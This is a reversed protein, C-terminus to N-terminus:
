KREETKSSCRSQLGKQLAIAPLKSKKQRRTLRMCERECVSVCLMAFQGRKNSLDVGRGRNWVEDVEGDYCEFEVVIASLRLVEVRAM